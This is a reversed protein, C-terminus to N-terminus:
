FTREFIHFMDDSDKLNIQKNIQGIFPANKKFNHVWKNEGDYKGGEIRYFLDFANLVNAIKEITNLAAFPSNLMTIINNIFALPDNLGPIFIPTSAQVEMLMRKLEYMLNRYAWNGKKDKYDGLGFLSVTLVVLTEVEAIARKVNYRDMDSLSEWTTAITTKSSLLGKAANFIFTALSYYYGSRYEGLDADYHPKNFRRAYHAPMWQRFNMLLRGIAYRHVLGKDISGFAGHMSKNCYAIQKEVGTIDDNTIDRVSEMNGNSDRIIWKYRERNETLFGNAGQKDVGFIQFLPVENNTQIDYVKVSDLIALMTQHHLLHEGGGYLFMLENNNLIKGIESNKFGKEKLTEFFDDMVNFREGLLTLLAKKNNSSLEALVEPLLRAYQVDAKLFNTMTFFEKCKAEIFMQIHGVMLNAEAGLLNTTLGLVSTAGTLSDIVSDVSIPKGAVVLDGLRDKRQNYLNALSFKEAQEASASKVISERVPNIVKNKGFGMLNVLSFPGYGKEYGRQTTLYDQALVLTDIVDSMVVYNVASATFASMAQSFNTSVTKADSLRHTFFIPIRMLESGDLNVSVAKIHNGMLMDEFSDENEEEKSTYLNSFVDEVNNWLEQVNFTKTVQITDFLNNESFPIGNTVITKLAMMKIYYERVAPDVGLSKPNSIGYKEAKPMRLSPIYDDPDIDDIPVDYITHIYEKIYKKYLVENEGTFPFRKETNENEWEIMADDLKRGRVGSDYLGKRYTAKDKIYRYYDVESKMYRFVGDKDTIFLSETTKGKKYLEDTLVRIIYDTKRLISDRERNNEKVAEYFLGLAEDSSENMSLFLKEVFGIDHSLTDIISSFSRQTGNIIKVDESGWFKQLFMKVLSLQVKRSQSELDNIVQLLGISTSKVDKLISDPVDLQDLDMSEVNSLEKVVSEYANIYSLAEVVKQSYANIVEMDNTADKLENKINSVEKQFNVFTKYVSNLFGSISEIYNESEMLRENASIMRDFKKNLKGTKRRKDERIRLAAAYLEKAAASLSDIHNSANTLYKQKIHFRYDLDNISDEISQAGIGYFTESSQPLGEVAKKEREALEDPDFKRFESIGTNLLNTIMNEWYSANTGQLPEESSVKAVIEATKDGFQQVIRQVLTNYAPKSKMLELFIQSKLISMNKVGSSGGKFSVLINRLNRYNRFNAVKNATDTSWIIDFGLSNLYSQAAQFRTDLENIITNSKFNSADTIDLDIYYKGNRSVIKAHHKEHTNNYSLVRDKIENPNDYAIPQESSDIAGIAKRENKVQRLAPIISDLNAKEKFKSFIVEGQENFDKKSFQKRFSDDLTVAYLMVTLYRNEKGVFNQIDQFLKSRKRNITPIVNCFEGAM